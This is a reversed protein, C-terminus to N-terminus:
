RDSLKDLMSYTYNKGEFILAPKNPYSRATRVFLDAVTQKRLIFWRMYLQLRVFGYQVCMHFLIFIAHFVDGSM